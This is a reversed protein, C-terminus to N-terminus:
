VLASRDGRLTGAAPPMVEGSVECALRALGARRINIAAVHDAHGEHGCEVCRFRARSPRNERAVHACDPCTRSTNRPPLVELRGGAWALKYDLQRRFEGWGQRLISRNLGSKAAVNTGPAAVTGKASRSMPGVRLDEICVIAHSKGITTSIKHLYDRRTEGVRAHLRNIRAKQKKWNCGGKRMRALRRNARAIRAELPVLCPCPPEFAGDSDTLFRAIGVDIGIVSEPAPPMAQPAPEAVERRTLISVFWRGSRESVSVSRVEGLVDRSARYRMWGLRPLRIRGTGADLTIQRPDPFRFSARSRHKKKFVPFDARGEFFNVYARRLDKFVQQLPHVPADALWHTEPDHRWLTLERCLAAYGLHPEGKEHRAQQLALARNFVFRTSGGLRAMARCQAGDPRLEFRFAQLRESM